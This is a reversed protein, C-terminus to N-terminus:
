LLPGWLDLATEIMAGHAQISGTSFPTSLWQPTKNLLSLGSLLM